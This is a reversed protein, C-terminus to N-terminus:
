MVEAGPEIESEPIVPVIREEGLAAALIMCNSVLGRIKRPALNLVFIFSRGAFHEPGYLHGLGTIAQRKFSGFDVELRLLRDTGEVREASLVRGVRMEVKRFESIDIEVM